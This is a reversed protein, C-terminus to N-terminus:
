RSPFLGLAPHWGQRRPRPVLGGGPEARRGKLVPLRPCLGAPLGAAGGAGSATPSGSRLAGWCRGLCGSPFGSGRRSQGFMQIHGRTIPNFSGCALLIVHTKTTETMTGARRPGARGQGARGLGAGAAKQTETRSRRRSPRLSRAPRSRPRHRPQPLPAPDWRGEGGRGPLCLGPCASVRPFRRWRLGTHCSLSVRVSVCVPPLHVGQSM